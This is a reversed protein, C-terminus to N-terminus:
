LQNTKHLFRIIDTIGAIYALERIHSQTSEFCAIYDQILFMDDRDLNLRCIREELDCLNEADQLYIEDAQMIQAIRKKIVCEMGAEMLENFISEM